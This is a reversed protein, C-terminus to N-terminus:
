RSRPAAAQPQAPSNSVAVSSSQGSNASTTAATTFSASTAGSVAAGNMKWQYSLSVTSTAAVSFTATHGATVTQNSPNSTIAPPDTPPAVVTPTSGTGWLEISTRSGTSLSVALQGFYFRSASPTFTVFGQISQGASLTVPLSPGSFSFQATSSSVSAVSVQSSGNNTLTLTVPASTTGAAQPRFNISFPSATLTSRTPSASAGVAFFMMGLIVVCPIRLSKGRFSRIDAFAQM